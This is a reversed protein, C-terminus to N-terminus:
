KLLSEFDFCWQHAQLPQYAIEVLNQDVMALEDITNQNQIMVSITDASQSIDYKSMLQAGLIRRNKPNYVLRMLVPTTTPMFEPRYNDEFNVARAPIHEAQAYELTMGSSVVVTDFLKLGSTAQTGMDKMTNGFINNGAIIGQRVANTALPIYAEKQTPNYHIGVADGAAYIHPDSTQTYENTALSGDNNMLLKDKFLDTNPRFGVCLIALDSNFQNGKNTTITLSDEGTFSQVFQNLALTVNNDKFQQEIRNTFDADLYKSLIRPM